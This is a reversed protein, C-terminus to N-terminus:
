HVLVVFGKLYISQPCAPLFPHDEGQSLRKLIQIERNAEIAATNIMRLFEEEDVGGSCSFTFLLGKPELLSFALQNLAQYKKLGPKLHAKQAVFKPPDLCITHFTRREQKWQELCRHVDSQVCEGSLSNKELNKQTQAIAQASSDVFTASTGRGKLGNIGFGGSFCFADLIKGFATEQFYHRNARQDLYFGTKQFGIQTQYVCGNEQILVQQDTMVEPIHPLGEKKLYADYFFFINKPSLIQQFLSRLLETQQYMGITSIRAVLIGDYWDAILGPLRDGESHILRYSNTKTELHLVSIRLHLADRIRQEFFIPATVDEREDRTLLRIQIQSAPSFWGQGIFHHQEDFVAVVEGAKPVGQIKKISEKYIWPHGKWLPLAHGSKVIVHLM